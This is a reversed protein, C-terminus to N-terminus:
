GGSKKRRVLFFVVAIVALFALLVITLTVNIKGKQVKQLGQQHQTIAKNIEEGSTTKDKNKLDKLDDIVNFKIMKEQEATLAAIKEAETTTTASFRALDSAKVVTKGASSLSVYKVIVNLIRYRDKLANYVENISKGNLGVLDNYLQQRIKIENAISDADLIAIRPGLWYVANVFADAPDPKLDTKMLFYAELLLGLRGDANLQNILGAVELYAELPIREDERVHYFTRTMDKLLYATMDIKMNESKQKMQSLAREHVVARSEDGATSIGLGELVNQITAAAKETLTMTKKLTQSAQRQATEAMDLSIPLRATVVEGIFNLCMMGCVCQKEGLFARCSLYKDFDLSKNLWVGVESAGQRCSCETLTCSCSFGNLPIPPDSQIAFAFLVGPIVLTSFILFLMVKKM